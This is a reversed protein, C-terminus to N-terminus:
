RVPNVPIVTPSVITSNSHINLAGFVLMSILSIIGVVGAIIGIVSGITLHNELNAQKIGRDSGEGRDLRAISNDIKETLSKISIDTTQKLATILAESEHRANEAVTKTLDNVTARWENQSINHAHQAIEAKEIAKEAAALAAAVSKEASVSAALVAEKAAALAANVAEKASLSAAQLAVSSADFRQQYRLDAEKFVGDYHHKLNEIMISFHEKLTEVTWQSPDTM